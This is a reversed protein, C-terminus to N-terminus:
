LNEKIKINKVDNKYKLNLSGGNVVFTGFYSINCLIWSSINLWYMQNDKVIQVLSVNIKDYLMVNFTM